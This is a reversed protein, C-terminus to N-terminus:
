PKSNRENVNGEDVNTVIGPTNATGAPMVKQYIPYQPRWDKPVSSRMFAAFKQAGAPACPIGNALAADAVFIELAEILKSAFYEKPNEPLDDFDLTDYTASYYAELALKQVQAVTLWDWPKSVPKFGDKRRQRHIAVHRAHQELNKTSM